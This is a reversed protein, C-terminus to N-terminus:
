WRLGSPTRFIGRIMARQCPPLSEWKQLLMPIGNMQDGNSVSALLAPEEGTRDFRLMTKD